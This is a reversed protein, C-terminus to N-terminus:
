GKLGGKGKGNEERQQLYQRFKQCFAGYGMDGKIGPCSGMIATFNAKDSLISEHLPWQRCRWPKGSHVLCGQKSFFICHGDVTKMQVVGDTVRLFKDFVEQRPMRLYAILRKQDEDNLSVTTEGQCCHGCQRCGFIESEKTKM